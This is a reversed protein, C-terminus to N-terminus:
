HAVTTPQKKMYDVVSTMSKRIEALFASLATLQGTLLKQQTQPLFGAGVLQEAAALQTSAVDLLKAINGVSTGLQKAISEYAAGSAGSLKQFADRQSKLEAIQANAATLDSELDAKTAM